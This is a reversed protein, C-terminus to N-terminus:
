RASLEINTTKISSFSGIELAIYSMELELLDHLAQARLDM